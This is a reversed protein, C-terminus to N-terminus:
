SYLGNEQSEAHERRHRVKRGHGQERGGTDQVDKEALEKLATRGSKALAGISMKEGNILAQHVLGELGIRSSPSTRLTDAAMGGNQMIDQMFSRAQEVEEPQLGLKELEADGKSAIGVVAEALMQQYHPGTEDRMAKIESGGIGEAQLINDPLTAMFMLREKGQLGHLLKHVDQKSFNEYFEKEPVHHYSQAKNAYKRIVADVEKLPAIERGGRKVIQREGVLRVLMLPAIEGKRIAEAIHESAELLKGGLQQRIQSCGPDIKSMEEQHCKFTMAIYNALSVTNYRAGPVDFDQTDPSERLTEALKTIMELGDPKLQKRRQEQQMTSQYMTVLPAAGGAAGLMVGEFSGKGSKDANGAPAKETPVNETPVHPADSKRVVQRVAGFLGPVKEVLGVANCLHESSHATSLRQRRAYIVENEEPTIRLLSMLGGSGHIDKLVPEIDAATKSLAGKYRSINKYFALINESLLTGLGLALSTGTAAYSLHRPNSLVKGGYTNVVHTTNEQLYGAGWTILPNVFTKFAAGMHAPMSIFGLFQYNEPVIGREQQEQIEKLEQALAEGRDRYVNPDKLVDMPDYESHYAM